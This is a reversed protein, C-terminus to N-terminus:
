TKKSAQPSHNSVLGVLAGSYLGVGVVHRGPSMFYAAYQLNEWLKNGRVIDCLRVIYGILGAPAVLARRALIIITM